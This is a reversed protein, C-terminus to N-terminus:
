EKKQTAEFKELAKLYHEDTENSGQDRFKLPEAPKPPEVESPNAPLNLNSEPVPKKQKGAKYQGKHWKEALEKDTITVKTELVKLQGSAIRQQIFVSDSVVTPRDPQVEQAMSVDSLMFDGTTEVILYNGPKQTM